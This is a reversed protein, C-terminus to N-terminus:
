KGALKKAIEEVIKPRLDAMVSDVISAIASADPASSSSLTSGEASAAVAMAKPAEATEVADSNPAAGAPATRIQHWNSKGSKSKINGMSEEGGADSSSGQNEEAAAAVAVATEGDPAADSTTAAEVERQGAVSAFTAAALEKAQVTEPVNATSEQQEAEAKAPGVEKLEVREAKEQQIKEQEIKKEETEAQEIRGPEASPADPLAAIPATPAEAFTEPVTAVLGRDSLSPDTSGPDAPGLETSGLETPGPETPGPETASREASHPESQGAGNSGDAVRNPSVKANALLEAEALRNEVAAAIAAVGTMAATVMESGSATSPLSAFTRFMEAELSIGAEEGSLAVPEAVWRPGASAAPSAFVSVDAQVTAPTLLRLAQALEEDSPAPAEPEMTERTNAAAVSTIAASQAFKEAFPEAPNPVPTSPVDAHSQEAGSQRIESATANAFVSSENIESKVAVAEAQSIKTTQEEVPHQVTATAAAFAPEDTKGVSASERTTVVASVGTAGTTEAHAPEAAHIASPTASIEPVTHGVAQSQTEAAVEDAPATAAEVASGIVEAQTTTEVKAETKTTEIKTTEIKTAEIQADENKAQPSQVDPVTAPVEVATNPTPAEPTLAQVPTSQDAQVQDPSNRIAAERDSRRRGGVRREASPAVNETEAAPADLKAALASLADLEEPTIDKPIDPLREPEAGPAAVKSASAAVPKPKGKRFERFNGAAAVDEWSEEKEEKKKKTPFGLRSKWGNDAEENGEWRRGNGSGGFRDAGSASSSFRSGPSQPVVRDELKTIATLLESAEFPKVIHADARVRRAEEPKFPELKGVTLLVPIHSTQDDSKLRMCVELGSYGPMYVDLVILDPKVETIRKLAASGNNVTSVDYGADALIKRGMNQATVSDDALLIKRAM